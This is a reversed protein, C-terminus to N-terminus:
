SRVEWFMSVLTTHTEERIIGDQSVSKLYEVIEKELAENVSCMGRLRGLFWTIAAETKKESRWVTEEYHVEPNFGLGWITDFMYAVSDDNETESIGALKKLQGFIRDDRRAPRCLYCYKKSAEIMKILTGYDAVAPTTHAFVLDYKGCFEAGDCDYWNRELFEVNEIKNEKAYERACAIMKPSFDVGVACGTRGALAISYAGAGCGVDLCKMDKTLCIRKDLYRLFEDDEFNISSDYVYDEAVSDWAGVSAEMNRNMQSKWKEQIESLKM